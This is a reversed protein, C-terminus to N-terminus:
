QNSIFANCYFLGSGSSIARVYAAPADSYYPVQYGSTMPGFTYFTMGENLFFPSLYQLAIIGSPVTTYASYVIDSGQSTPFWSGTFSGSQGNLLLSNNFYLSNM